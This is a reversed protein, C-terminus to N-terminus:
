IQLRVFNDINIMFGLHRFSGFSLKGQAKSVRGEARMGDSQARDMWEKIRQDTRLTDFQNLLSEIQRDQRNSKEELDEHTRYNPELVFIPFSFISFSVTRSQAEQPQAGCLRPERRPM